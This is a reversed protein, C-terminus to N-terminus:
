RPRGLIGTLCLALALVTASLSLLRGCVLCPPAFTFEVSHRGPWVACGLFDGNVREVAGPRGDVTVRWGPDHSAAVVLLQRGPAHSHVLMRGPREEVLEATGPAGPDVDVPRETLAARNLDIAALDRAADDSVTTRTVLRVPPLPDRVRCWGAPSEAGRDAPERYWAVGAVRLAPLTHYNLRKRPELGGCYGNALSEGLSIIRTPFGTWSCVRGPHPTPPRETDDHYQAMTPTNSWLPQSFMTNQLCHKHLDVAAVLVLGYLGALRGRAALTLAAAASVMVAPGTVFRLDRWQGPAPPYAARFALGAAVAVAAALWPLVLQRWPLTRRMRVFEALHGFAVGALVAAALATLHMYRSPARFQGVLPLRTQLLYLRGYHGTALWAALVGLTVAYWTLRSTLASRPSGVSRRATLWWLALVVAVAGFYFPEDWWEPAPRAMLNPAVVQILRRPVFAGFLPDFSARNSNHLFELTSLLQVGGVALGLGKAAVWMLFTRVPRAARGILFLVYVGEALLSYSMAQPHGLLVQSGTLLAIAGATALARPAVGLILRDLLWLQWPLHALVAVFNVHNAHYLNNASFTYALAGALAAAPGTHRRLFLFTGLLMLPFALVADLAFAVDTPLWRYLLLHVPHYPGHEGEGTIFVGNYMQPMWDFPEGAKLCHAYFERLPLHFASLDWLVPVRGTLLPRALTALMVLGALLL